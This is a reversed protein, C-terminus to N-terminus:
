EDRLVELPKQNLIRLSAIWGAGIAVLVTLLVAMLNPVLDFRFKADLLRTLLIRSFATALLSGMVGAVLGLVLFEVSFIAALIGRKAGLTKLVATERMRRFRTGAVTSALILAGAFITFASIFRVVLSVQDVLDQIIALVDAVNIVTVTPYKQYAARQLVPVQSPKMRVAGFYMAPFGALAERSFTLEGTAGPGVAKVRYVAAVNVTFDRGNSNWVFQSGPHVQLERAADESVAIAPGAKWWAGQRVEVDEPMTEVWTVSRTQLFRKGFGKLGLDTPPRGDVTVIRASVQPAIRPKGALGPQSSILDLIGDRESATINILFVNPAGPPASNAVEVLLSRQVLYITLTFMVGVGLAVLVAGAHNGPRYLNALGHRAAVPLRFPLLRVLVKVGRLLLWQIGSLVVLSIVLALAFTWGMRASDALWAALGGLGALILLGAAISPRQNLLRERWGLKMEPMERRFIVAPRIRRISLLPPLTFLLTVLVGVCLGELAFAPSWDVGGEFPFFNRLLVPFLKQIVAGVAIGLVGGALGLFLTEYTYIRLIRASSAGLCKMIAISDLRQQLHAHIATAVGLAGVCLAILSVLSLFTTSRELARTIAPNSERFDTIQAEPFVQKLNTKMEGIDIGSAPLRFLFRQSARSGYTILGTRELGARSILVRPGINLSGALRDPEARVVAAIRYQQGGITVSGGVNLGLRVILDDSVAIADPTLAAPLTQPPDLKVEGYFPYLKPDIAKVSVLVPTSGQAASLMSVTETIQTMVAGRHQYEVLTSEQQATPDSFIKVTVDAANLTRAKALLLDHFGHSFGQVGALAGVGAAIGLIVFVFKWASARADRWAIKWETKTSRWNM